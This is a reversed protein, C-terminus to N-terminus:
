CSPSELLRDLGRRTLMNRKMEALDSVTLRVRALPLVIANEFILHHRARLAYAALMQREDADHVHDADKLLSMIKPTDIASHRHDAQLKEVVKEIEDEPESRARMMPFLDIEEDALHQPLIHALFALVSVRANDDPTHAETLQDILACIERERMHDEAIFDLPNASIDLTSIMAGANMLRQDSKASM